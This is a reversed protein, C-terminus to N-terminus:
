GGVDVRTGQVAEGARADEAAALAAYRRGIQAVLVDAIGFGGADTMAKAREADLFPAFTREGASNGVLTGKGASKRMEGLLVTLFVSELERALERVQELRRAPGAGPEFRVAADLGYRRGFAAALPPRAGARNLLGGIPPM